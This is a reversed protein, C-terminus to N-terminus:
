SNTPSRASGSYLFIKLFFQYHSGALSTSPQNVKCVFNASDRYFNDWGLGDIHFRQQLSVVFPMLQILTAATFHHQLSKICINWAFLEIWLLPSEWPIGYGENYWTWFIFTSQKIVRKKSTQFFGINAGIWLNRMAGVRRWKLIQAKM